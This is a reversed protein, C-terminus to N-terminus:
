GAVLQFETRRNKSKCDPTANTECGPVPKDPGNGVIIFRNRDMGYQSELYKAVSEARQRSLRLNMERSGVNDTNGEVRIRTNGYAKAIDAFQLDIITKANEGLEYQGTKFSISVPKTAIAPLAKVDETAPAFERSGEGEYDPGSLEAASVARTNALVRWNPRSAPAFGLAEFSEGMRTYLAEGTVGKYNVNKGFFNLNDGHTTLYVNNIGALADEESLGTGDAMFKAALKKNSENSNIEASAKMWGEYFANLKDQNKEAYSKKATFIDAIIHSAERTSQLIRTGPVDRVCIEDDPSWVVAADVQGSKYSTAADIASPVEVVKVDKIDMGASELMWILFTQSPTTPTVAIKKGRLDNVSKIERKVVIADGGRSWDVLMVVQPDFPGLNEMETPCSSTETGLLHVEDAKWAQRSADWDDILEFDVKLGYDQYFRSKESWDFGNNFYFGPAYGGWTFVQVKLVDDDNSKTRTPKKEISIDEGEQGQNKLNQSIETNNLLYNGGFVVAAIILLTILFKSFTTLRQAM